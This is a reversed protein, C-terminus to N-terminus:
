INQSYVYIDERKTWGAARWFSNGIANDGFVFLHCKHIGEEKLRHLCKAVLVRGIGKGRHEEAVVVHYIYGRRGDHGCLVTGIIMGDHEYCFSMDMNRDLFKEINERNDADSLGVGLTRSWLAHIESFDAIHIERVSNDETLKIEM